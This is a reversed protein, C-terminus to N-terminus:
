YLPPVEGLGSRAEPDLAFYRAAEGDAPDHICTNQYTVIWYIHELLADLPFPSPELPGTCLIGFERSYNPHYFGQVPDLFVAITPEDTDGSFLDARYRITGRLPGDALEVPDSARRKQKYNCDIEFHFVRPTDGPRNPRVRIRETKRLIGERAIKWNNEFFERTARGRPSTEDPLTDDLDQLRVLQQLMAAIPSAPLTTEDFM